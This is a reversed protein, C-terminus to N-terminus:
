LNNSNKSGFFERYAERRIQNNNKVANRIACEDRYASLNTVENFGWELGKGLGTPIM